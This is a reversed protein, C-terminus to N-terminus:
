TQLKSPKSPKRASARASPRRLAAVPNGVLGSLKFVGWYFPHSLDVATDDLQRVVAPWDVGAQKLLLGVPHREDIVRWGGYAFTSAAARCAQAITVGGCLSHYMTATFLLAAADSVKWLTSVIAGAGCALFAGDIGLYDDVQWLDAASVGSDCASLCVLSAGRLDLTKQIQAVSLWGAAEDTGAVAVGSRWYDGIIWTGHCALHLLAAAPAEAALAPGTPAPLLRARGPASLRSLVETEPKAFALGAGHAAAVVNGDPRPALTALHQLLALSPAYSITEFVDCLRDGHADDTAPGLHLPLAHVFSVPVIVLERVGRALLPAVLSSGLTPAAGILADLDAPQQLPLRASARLQELSVGCDDVEGVCRRRGAGAIWYGALRTSGDLANRALTLTLVARRDDVLGDVLRNVRAKDDRQATKPPTAGPSRLQEVTRAFRRRAKAVAADSDADDPAVTARAALADLLAGRAADFDARQKTDLPAIGILLAPDLAALLEASKAADIAAVIAWDDARDAGLRARETAAADALLADLGPLMREVLRAVAADAIRLARTGVGALAGDRLAFVDLRVRRSQVLVILDLLGEPTDDYVFEASLPDAPDDDIQLHFAALADTDALGLRMTGHEDRLLEAIATAEDIDDLVITWHAMPGASRRQIRGGQLYVYDELWQTSRWEGGVRDPLSNVGGWADDITFSNRRIQMAQAFKSELEGEAELLRREYSSLSMLVAMSAEAAANLQGVAADVVPDRWGSAAQLRAAIAAHTERFRAMALLDDREHLAAPCRALAADVQSRIEKSGAVKHLWRSPADHGRDVFIRPAEVIEATANVLVEVADDPALEWRDVLEAGLTRPDVAALRRRAYGRLLVANLEDPRWWRALPLRGSRYHACVPVVLETVSQQGARLGARELWEDIDDPHQGHAYRRAIESALLAPGIAPLDAGDPPTDLGQVRRLADAAAEPLSQLLASCLGTMWQQRTM